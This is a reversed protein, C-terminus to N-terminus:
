PVGKSSAGVTAYGAKGRLIGVGSIRELLNEQAFQTPEFRDFASEDHLYNAGESLDYHIFRQGREQPPIRPARNKFLKEKAQRVSRLPYHRLLFKLPFIRQGETVAHHGWVTLNVPGTNKWAKVQLFHSGLQAFQYHTFFTAPDMAAEFGDATLKFEVITFDIANFGVADVASIAQQLTLGPWPSERIEDADHHILWDHNSQRAILEVNAIIQKLDFYDSPGERPFRELSVRSDREALSRAIEYSGDSSWNDLVKVDVGQALLHSLAAELIDKENFVHIVALVRLLRAPVPPAALTGSIALLADKGGRDMTFGLLFPASGHSRLLKEFDAMASQRVAAAGGLEETPGCREVDSAVLLLPCEHSLNALQGRLLNPRRLLPAADACIVIANSLISRPVVPLSDAINGEVLITPPAPGPPPPYDFLGGLFPRAPSTDANPQGRDLSSRFPALQDAGDIAVVQFFNGLWRLKEADGVGIAVVYRCALRRGFYYAADYLEPVRGARDATSANAAQRKVKKTRPTSRASRVFALFDSKFRHSMHDSPIPLPRPASLVTVAPKKLIL